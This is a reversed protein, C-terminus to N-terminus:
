AADSLSGTVSLAPGAIKTRIIPASLVQGRWVIALQRGIKTATIDAFKRAAADKLTINITALGPQDNTGRSAVAVASSDLLVEKLVRLKQQGTRDSPDARVM